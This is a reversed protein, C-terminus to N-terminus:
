SMPFAPCSVQSERASVLGSGWAVAATHGAYREAGVGVGSDEVVAAAATELPAAAAETSMDLDSRSGLGVLLWM